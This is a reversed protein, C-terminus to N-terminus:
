NHKKFAFPHDRAARKQAARAQHQAQRDQLRHAFHQWFGRGFCDGAARSGRIDLRGDAHRANIKRVAHPFLIPKRRLGARIVLQREGEFWEGSVLLVHQDEGAEIFLVAMAAIAMVRFRGIEQRAQEDAFGRAFVDADAACRDVLVDRLLDPM